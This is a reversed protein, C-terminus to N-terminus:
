RIGDRIRESGVLMDYGRYFERVRESRILIDYSEYFNISDKKITWGYFFIGKAIDYVDFLAEELKNILDNDIVIKIAKYLVETDLYQELYAYLVEDAEYLRSTYSSYFLMVELVRHITPLDLESLLKIISEPITFIVYQEGYELVGNQQLHIVETKIRSVEFNMETDM